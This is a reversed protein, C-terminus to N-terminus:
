PVVTVSNLVSTNLTTTSGSAIALGVHCNSAMTVTATSILTWSTGNTSRYATFVNGSRVLRVWLNPATGTSSSTSTVSGGATTRRDWRWGGSGNVTLAAMRSNSALTDRIMVGVRANTGTNQLTNVRAIISGDGTLIQYVYRFGDSTGGFAGAGKLTHSTGYFEAGGQLGTTGIDASVWPLPYPTITVNDFVASSTVANNHSTVAMGVSVAGSLSVTATGQQIWNVGDVSAYGTLLTGSRTLRVWNNPAANAASGAVMGSAGSTTTRYQFSFGNGPTLIMMAHAADAAASSRIMVGAKAWPDTNTQSTIRARIEGDGSLTQSAHRFADVTGYIDAGSGTVTYTGPTSYSESASGAVGVAGIDASTWGAPLAHNVPINLTTEAYLGGQDTVRVTFANVGGTGTAPTGSLTGNSAVTLWAPGATKGFTLTAGADPDSADGSLSGSYATGVVASAKNLPNSAFSPAQNPPADSTLVDPGAQYNGLVQQANLAYDYVRTEDFTADANNDGAWNSRGLWVNLDDVTGPGLLTPVSAIQVGNKYLKWAASATEYTAVLHMRVGVTTAGAVDQTGGGALDQGGREFRIDNAMGVSASIMLYDAGNFSGGPATVENISNNGFDLIRAWNQTTHVTVWLEYSTESFGPFIEGSGSVSRNPLDIYAATTSSGGALRVGTGTASAGTGRVSGHATGISDTLQTGAALAGTTNDFRYRHKPAITIAQQADAPVLPLCVMFATM